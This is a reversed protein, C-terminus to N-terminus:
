EGSVQGYEETGYVLYEKPVFCPENPM